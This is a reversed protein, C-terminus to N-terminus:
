LDCNDSINLENIKGIVPYTLTVLIHSSQEHLHHENYASKYEFLSMKIDFAAYLHKMQYVTKM